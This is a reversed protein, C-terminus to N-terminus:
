KHYFWNVLEVISDYRVDRESKNGTISVQCKILHSGHESPKFGREKYTGTSLRLTLDKGKLTIPERREDDGSYDGNFSAPGSVTHDDLKRDPNCRTESVEKVDFGNRDLLVGLENADKDFVTYKTNVYFERQTPINAIPIKM